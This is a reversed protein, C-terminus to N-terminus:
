VFSWSAIQRIRAGNRACISFLLVVALVHSLLSGSFVWVSLRHGPVRPGPSGPVPQDELEWSAGTVPRRCGSDHMYGWQASIVGSHAVLGWCNSVM